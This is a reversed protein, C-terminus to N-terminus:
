QTIDSDPKDPRALYGILMQAKDSDTCREPAPTLSVESCVKGLEALFYRALGAADGSVTKAWAQYPLIRNSYLALAKVPEELATSMLANGMLQPPVRRDRVHQCYHYHLQDALSLLRGVSYPASKMYEEKIIDMKFLLLGLISPLITSQRPYSKAAVSVQGQAHAQGLALVLGGANHTIGYLSRHLVPRLFVGEELLLSIGDEATFDKIASPSWQPQSVTKNKEAGKGGRSWVTNLTSVVEMPFPTEPGRWEPKKEKAFRKVMIQPLNHCSQQWLDASHLLHQASYCKQSSVRTRALDMKRLVFVRIDLDPNRAMLGRLAATVNSACDEFRLSEDSDQAADHTGGFMVAADPPEQPLESPYALLVERNNAARSVAIWTKGKREPDTLWELAGKMFSRSEDGVPCSEENIRRYRYQCPSEHNMARLKVQGLLNVTVDPYTEDSGGPDKGFADPRGIESTKRKNHTLLRGNIWDRIEPRKVPYAFASAGDALELLISVDNTPEKDGHHFAGDFYQRASNPSAQMQRQFGSKIADYFQRAPLQGVRDMLAEIARFEQPPAGLIARLQEPIKRLCDEIRAIHKDEWTKAVATKVRIFQELQLRTLSGDDLAKKFVKDDNSRKPDFSIWWLPPVNFYPFSYGNGTEWKRLGGAEKPEAVREVRAIESHPGVFVFFALKGTGGKLPQAKPVLSYEPHWRKPSIGVNELSSAADYLENLV